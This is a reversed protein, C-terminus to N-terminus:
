RQREMRLPRDERDTGVWRADGASRGTFLTGGAHDILTLGGEDDLTWLGAEQLWEPCSPQASALGSVAGSLALGTEPRSGPPMLLVLCMEGEHTEVLYGGAVSLPDVAQLALAAIAAPLIM